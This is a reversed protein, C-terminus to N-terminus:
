LQQLEPDVFVGISDDLIPDAIEYADLLGLVSDMHTQEAQAINAFVQVGWMDALTLYVDCVLKEEERMSVLSDASSESLEDATAAVPVADAAPVAVVVPASATASSAPENAAGYAVAGIGVVAVAEAAGLLIRQSTSMGNSM